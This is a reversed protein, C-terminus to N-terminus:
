EYDGYELLTLQANPDGQIHDEPTVPVKLTAM